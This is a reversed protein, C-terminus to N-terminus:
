NDEMFLMKNRNFSFSHVNFHACSLTYKDYEYERENRKKGVIRLIGVFTNM